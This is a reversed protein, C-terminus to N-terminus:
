ILNNDVWERGIGSKLYAERKRAEIRNITEEKYILVFPRRNKTSKNKGSNHDNLRRVINDTIGTYKFGDKLSKLIYVYYM